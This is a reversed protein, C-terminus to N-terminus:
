RVETQNLQDLRFVFKKNWIVKSMKLNNKRFFKSNEKNEFFDNHRFNEHNECLTLSSLWAVKQGSKVRKPLKKLNKQFPVQRLCKPCNVFDELKHMKLSTKKKPVVGHHMKLVTVSM